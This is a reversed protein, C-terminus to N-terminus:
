KWRLLGNLLKQDSCNFENKNIYHWIVVYTFMHASHLIYFGVRAQIKGDKRGQGKREELPSMACCFSSKM